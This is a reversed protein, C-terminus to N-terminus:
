LGIYKSEEFKDAEVDKIIEECIDSLKRIDGKPVHITLTWVEDEVVCRFTIDDGDMVIAPVGIGKVTGITKSVKGYLTEAFLSTVPVSKTEIEYLKLREEDRKRYNIRNQRGISDKEERSMDRIETLTLGISPYKEAMEENVEEYNAIHKVELTYSSDAPNEVIRFGYAGTFPPLMFYEVKANFDGFFIKELDTKSRFNYHWGILNWDEDVIEGGAYNYEITKLFRGRGGVVETIQSFGSQTFLIAAVATLLTKKM